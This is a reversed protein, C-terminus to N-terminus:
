NNIFPLVEDKTILIHRKCNHLMAQSVNPKFGVYCVTKGLSQAKKIAPILDTDSSILYISDYLNEYAGVVIDIAIQVDVGKEHYIGDSKLMYGKIIKINHQKLSAFLQAQQRYLMQSKRNNREQRIEGVCYEVSNQTKPALHGVFSTFDFRLLSHLDLKKLSHYFNSGDIIILSKRKFM